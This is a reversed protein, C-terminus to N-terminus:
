PNSLISVTVSTTFPTSNATYYERPITFELSGRTFNDNSLNDGELSIRAGTAIQTSTTLDALSQLGVSGWNGAPTDSGATNLRSNPSISARPTFAIHMGIDSPDFDANASTPTSTTGRLAQLQYANNSRLRFPVSATLPNAAVGTGVLPSADGISLSTSMQANQAAESTVTVGTSVTATGDSRIDYAGAVTVSFNVTGDTITGVGSQAQAAVAFGFTLGLSLAINKLINKM